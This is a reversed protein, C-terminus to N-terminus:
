LPSAMKKVVQTQKAKKLLSLQKKTNISALFNGLKVASSLDKKSGLPITKISTSLKNIAKTLTSVENQDWM